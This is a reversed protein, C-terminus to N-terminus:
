NTDAKFSTSTSNSYTEIYLNENKNYIEKYENTTKDLQNKKVNILKINPNDNKSISITRVLNNIIENRYVPIYSNKNYKERICESDCKLLAEILSRKIEEYDKDNKLTTIAIKIKEIKHFLLTSSDKYIQGKKSFSFFTYIGSLVATTLNLTSMLVSRTFDSFNGFSSIYSGGLSLLLMSFQIVTGIFLMWNGKENYFTAVYHARECDNNLDAEQWGELRISKFEVINNEKNNKNKNDKSKNQNEKSSPNIITEAEIIDTENNNDIEENPPSNLEDFHKTKESVTYKYNEPSLTGPTPLVTINTKIGM